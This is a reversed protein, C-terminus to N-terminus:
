ATLTARLLGTFLKRASYNKEPFYKKEKSCIHKKDILLYKTSM